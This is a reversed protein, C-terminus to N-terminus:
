RSILASLFAFAFVGVVSLILLAPIAALALKVLFVVMSGFQMHVDTVVVRAARNPENV